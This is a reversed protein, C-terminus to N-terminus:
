ATRRKLALALLLLAAGIGLGIVLGQAFDPAGHSRLAPLSIPVAAAAFTAAIAYGSSASKNMRKEM